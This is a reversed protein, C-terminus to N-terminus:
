GLRFGILFGVVFSGALPLYQSLAEAWDKILGFIGDPHDIAEHYTNEAVEWNISILQFHQLILLVAILLALVILTIKLAKKMTFGFALGILSGLGIQQGLLSWNAAEINMNM